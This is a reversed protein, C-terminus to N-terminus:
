SPFLPWTKSQTTKNMGDNISKETKLKVDHVSKATPSSLEAVFLRLLPTNRALFKCSFLLLEVM